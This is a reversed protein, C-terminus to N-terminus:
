NKIEKLNLVQSFAKNGTTISEGYKDLQMEEFELMITGKKTTGKTAGSLLTVRESLSSSPVNSLDPGTPLRFAVSIATVWAIESEFVEAHPRSVRQRGSCEM